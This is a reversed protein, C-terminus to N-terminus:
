EAPVASLARSKALRRRELPGVIVAMLPPVILLTLLASLSLGGLV